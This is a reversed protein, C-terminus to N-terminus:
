SLKPPRKGYLQEYKKKLFDNEINLEGIKRLLIAEKKLELKNKWESDSKKTFIGPMREVLQKKWKAVMHPHVDFSAAIAAVTKEEKLAEVAVKVKFVSHSWQVILAKVSVM